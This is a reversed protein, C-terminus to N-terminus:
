SYEGPVPYEGLLFWKGINKRKYEIPNHLTHTRINRWFRDFGYKNTASRAGMLEFVGSTIELGVTSALANASGTLLVCEGREEATLAHDKEWVEDVQANAKEVLSAAGQLNIWFDGYRRLIYPDEQAKEVGAAIWPRTKTKTYAKAEDLAGEAIGIFVNALIIQSLVASLNAFNSKGVYVQNLIEGPQLIVNDFTVSGSDTQRQGIGDWDSHVTVGKKTIPIIAAGISTEDLDDVWSLILRDADQSGTSFSKKGNLIVQNGSRKGVLRKDLPNFCNGWFWNNKASETYFYAKQEETAYMHPSVLQLFHYGYLHAISSDAKALERVIQLVTSWTQGEGGYEKPILITLLGSERLLDRQTKATGGAKDRDAADRSFIKALRKAESIYDEVTRSELHTGM